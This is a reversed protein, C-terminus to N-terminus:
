EPKLMQVYANLKDWLEKSLKGPTQVKIKGGAYSWADSGDPADDTREAPRNASAAAKRIKGM